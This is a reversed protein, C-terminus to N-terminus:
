RLGSGGKRRGRNNKGRRKREIKPKDPPSTAYINSDSPNLLVSFIILEIM